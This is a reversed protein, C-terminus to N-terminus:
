THHLVPSLVTQISLQVLAALGGYHKSVQEVEIAPLM